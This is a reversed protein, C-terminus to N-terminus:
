YNITFFPAYLGLLVQPANEGNYISASYKFQLFVTYNQYVQFLGLELQPVFNYGNRFNTNFEGGVALYPFMQLEFIRKYVVGLFNKAPKQFLHSYSIAFYGKPYEGGVNAFTLFPIEKSIMFSISDALSSYAGVSPFLLSTGGLCLNFLSGGSEKALLSKDDPLEVEFEESKFEKGNKDKAILVFTAFSSDFTFGTLDLTFNHNDTLTKSVPFLKKNFLIATTCSDSTMFMLKFVHPKEPTIYSDILYFEMENEQSYLTVSFGFLILLFLKKM